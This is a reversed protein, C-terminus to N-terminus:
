QLRGCGTRSRVSSEWMSGCLTVGSSSSEAIQSFLEETCSLRVKVTLLLVVLEKLQDIFSPMLAPALNFAFSRRREYHILGFIGDM